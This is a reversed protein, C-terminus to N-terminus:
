PIDHPAKPARERQTAGCAPRETFRSGAPTTGTIHTPNWSESM